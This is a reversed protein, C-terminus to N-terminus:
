NKDRKVACSKYNEIYSTAFEDLVPDGLTSLSNIFCGDEVTDENNKKAGQKWIEKSVFCTLFFGIAFWCFCSIVNIPTSFYEYLNQLPPSGGGADVM